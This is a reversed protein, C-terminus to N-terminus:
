SLVRSIKSFSENNQFHSKGRPPPPPPPAKMHPTWPLTGHKLTINKLSFELFPIEIKGCFNPFTHYCKSSTGNNMNVKNPSFIWFILFIKPFHFGDGWFCGEFDEKPSEMLCLFESLPEGVKEDFSGFTSVLFHCM